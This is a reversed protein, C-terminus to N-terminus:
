LGTKVPEFSSLTTTDTVQAIFEMWKDITATPYVYTGETTASGTYIVPIEALIDAILTPDEGGVVGTDTVLGTQNNGLM